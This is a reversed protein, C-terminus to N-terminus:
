LRFFGVLPRISEESGDTAPLSVGRLLHPHKGELLCGHFPFGTRIRRQGRLQLRRKYVGWRLSAQLATSVFAVQNSIVSSPRLGTGLASVSALLGAQRM